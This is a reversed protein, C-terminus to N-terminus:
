SGDGSLKLLTAGIEQPAVGCKIEQGIFEFGGRSGHTTPEVTIESEKDDLTLQFFSAQKEFSALSKFGVFTLFEKGVSRLDEPDPVGRQSAALAQLVAVGLTQPSDNAGELKMRPESDIWLGNMTRSSSSVYIDQGRFYVGCAKM